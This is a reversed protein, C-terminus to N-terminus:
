DDAELKTIADIRGAVERALPDEKADSPLQLQLVKSVDGEVLIRGRLFAEMAAEPNREVFLSYAVQYPLTVTIEPDELEGLEIAMQGSSTDVYGHIEDDQFPSENVVVNARLEMTPAEVQDSYEDRIGKAADIWEPSLFPYSDASSSSM